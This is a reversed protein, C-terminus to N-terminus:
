NATHATQWAQETGSVVSQGFHRINNRMEQRYANVHADEINQRSLYGMRVPQLIAESGGNSSQQMASIKRFM